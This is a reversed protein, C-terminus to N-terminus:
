KTSRATALTCLRFEQLLTERKAVDRCSIYNALLNSCLGLKSLLHLSADLTTLQSGVLENDIHNGVINCSVVLTLAYDEVTERASGSLGLSEVLNECLM